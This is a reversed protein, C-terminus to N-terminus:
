EELDEPWPHASAGSEHGFGKGLPPSNDYSPRLNTPAHVCVCLRESMEDGVHGQNTHALM